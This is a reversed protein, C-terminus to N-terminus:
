APRPSNGQPASQGAGGTELLEGHRHRGRNMQRYLRGAILLGVLAVLLITLIMSRISM